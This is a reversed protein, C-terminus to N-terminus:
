IVTATVTFFDFMTLIKKSPSPFAFYAALGTASSSGVIILSTLDGHVLALLSSLAVGLAALLGVAVHPM